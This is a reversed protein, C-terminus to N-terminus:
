HMVITVHAIKQVIHTTFVLSHLSTHPLLGSHTVQLNTISPLETLANKQLALEKLSTLLGISEPLATLQNGNLALKELKGAAAWIGVDACRVRCTQM